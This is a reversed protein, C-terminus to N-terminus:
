LPIIFFNPDLVVHGCEFARIELTCIKCPPRNECIRDCISFYLTWNIWQHATFTAGCEIHTPLRGINVPIIVSRIREQIILLKPKDLIGTNILINQTFHKASGLFLNHMPDIVMMRVPDFYPLDQLVSFWCGLQSELKTRETHTKCQLLKSADERHQRNSRLKWSSRDFFSYNCQLGGESFLCYCRSCGFNAKHSLFGCVKRGAPIDCAVALLAAHIVREWFNHVKLPIGQWLQPLEDIMPSLYSNISIPPESPGPIIGVVLINQRKYRQSRPLNM